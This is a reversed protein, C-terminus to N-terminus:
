RKPGIAKSVNIVVNKFRLKEKKLAEEAMWRDEFTIFAYGLVRGTDRDTPYFLRDVVMGDTGFITRLNTETINDNLNTVRVKRLAEGDDDRAAASSKTATGRNAGWTATAGGETTPSATAHGEDQQKRLREEKVVSAYAPDTIKVETNSLEHMFRKVENRSEREYSDVTGMELALPPEKAVLLHQDGTAKGFRVFKARLDFPAIPRDVHYKRVKKIVEFSNGDADQEMERVVEAHEWQAEMNRRDEENHEDDYDDHDNDGVSSESSGDDFRHDLDVEDVWNSM